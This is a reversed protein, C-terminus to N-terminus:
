RFTSRRQPPGRRRRPAVIPAMVAAALRDGEVVDASVEGFEALQALREVVASSRLREDLRRAVEAAPGVGPVAEAM